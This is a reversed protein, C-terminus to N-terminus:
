TLGNISAVVLLLWVIKIFFKLQFATLFINQSSIHFLVSAVNTMSINQLVKRLEETIAMLIM